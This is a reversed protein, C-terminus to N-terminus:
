AEEQPADFGPPISPLRQWYHDRWPGIGWVSGDDCAIYLNDAGHENSAALCVIKRNRAVVREAQDPQNTWEGPFNM